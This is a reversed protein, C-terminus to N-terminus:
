RPTSAILSEGTVLEDNRHWTKLFHSIIESKNRPKEKKVRKKVVAWINGIPHVHPSCPPWDMVNIGLRRFEEKSKRSVHCPVNDQQIIETGDPNWDKMQQVLRGKIIKRIYADSEMSGEVVHSRGTGKKSFCAWIM